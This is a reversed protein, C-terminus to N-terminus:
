RHDGVLPVVGRDDRGRRRIQRHIGIRPRRRCRRPGPSQWPQHRQERQHTPCTRLNGAADDVDAITSKGLPAAVLGDDVTWSELRPPACNSTGGSGTVDAVSLLWGEATATGSLAWCLHSRSFTFIIRDVMSGCSLTAHCFSFTTPLGRLVPIAEIPHEAAPRADNRRIHRNAWISVSLWKEAYMLRLKQLTKRRSHGVVPSRGLHGQEHCM